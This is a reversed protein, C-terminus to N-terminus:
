LSYGAGILLRPFVGSNAFIAAPFQQPPIEKDTRSYQAGLGFTLAVRDGV